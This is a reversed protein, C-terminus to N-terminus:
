NVDPTLVKGDEDLRYTKCLVLRSYVSEFDKEVIKKAAEEIFSWPHMNSGSSPGSSSGSSGGLVSWKKLGHELISRFALMFENRILDRVSENVSDDGAPSYVKGNREDIM